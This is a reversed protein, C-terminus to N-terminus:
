RRPLVAKKYQKKTISIRQHFYCILVLSLIVTVQQRPENEETTLVLM